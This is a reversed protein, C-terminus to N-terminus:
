GFAQGTRLGTRPSPNVMVAPLALWHRVRWRETIMLSLSADFRPKFGSPM